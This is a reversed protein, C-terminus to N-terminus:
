EDVVYGLVFVVRVSHYCVGGPEDPSTQNTSGLLWPLGLVSHKYDTKASLLQQRLRPGAKPEGTATSVTVFLRHINPRHSSIICWEVDSVSGSSLEPEASQRRDKRRHTHKSLSRHAAKPLSTIFSTSTRGSMLSRSVSPRRELVVFVLVSAVQAM